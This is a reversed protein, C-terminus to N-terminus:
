KGSMTPLCQLCLLAPAAQLLSFNGLSGRWPGALVVTVVRLMWLWMRTMVETLNHGNHHVDTTWKSWGQGWLRAQSSDQCQAHESHLLLRSQWGPERVCWCVVMKVLAAFSGDTAARIKAEQSTADGDAACKGRHLLLEQAPALHLTPTWLEETLRYGAGAEWGKRDIIFLLLGTNENVNPYKFQLYLFLCLM